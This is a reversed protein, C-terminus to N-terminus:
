EGETGPAPLPELPWVLEHIWHAIIWPDMRGAEIQELARESIGFGKAQAYLPMPQEPTEDDITFVWRGNDDGIQVIRDLRAAKLRAGIMPWNARHRSVDGLGGCFPCIRFEIDCGGEGCWFTPQRPNGVCCPCTM